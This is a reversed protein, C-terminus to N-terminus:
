TVHGGVVLRAKRRFDEMKVDFIMHFTGHQYAIPVIEGNELKKFAPSVERMENTIDDVWLTNGNKKDLDYAQAVSKTVEIGFKHTKKM